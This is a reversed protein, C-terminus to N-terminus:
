QLCMETECDNKCFHLYDIHIHMVNYAIALPRFLNNIFPVRARPSRRIQLIDDRVLLQTHDKNSSGLRDRARESTTALWRVLSPSPRFQNCCLRWSTKLSALSRAIYGDGDNGIEFFCNNSTLRAPTCTYTYVPIALAALM